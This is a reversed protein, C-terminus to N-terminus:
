DFLTFISFFHLFKKRYKNLEVDLTAKKMKNLNYRPSIDVSILYIQIHIDFIM